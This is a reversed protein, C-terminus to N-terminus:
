QIRNAVRTYFGPPISHNTVFTIFLIYPIAPIKCLIQVVCTSYPPHVTYERKSSCHIKQLYSGTVKFPCKADSLSYIVVIYITTYQVYIVLKQSQTLICPTCLQVVQIQTRWGSGESKIIGVGHRIYSTYSAPDSYRIIICCVAGHSPTPKTCFTPLHTKNWQLVVPRWTISLSVAMNSLQPKYCSPYDEPSDVVPSPAPILM